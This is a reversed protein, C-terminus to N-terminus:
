INFKLKRSGNTRSIHMSFREHQGQKEINYPVTKLTIEISKEDSEISDLFRIKQVKIYYTEIHYHRHM